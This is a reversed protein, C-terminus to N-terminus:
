PLLIWVDGRLLAVFKLRNIASFSFAWRGAAELRTHRTVQAGLINLVDSLPDGSGKSSRSMVMSSVDYAIEIAGGM